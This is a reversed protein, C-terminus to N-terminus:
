RAENLAEAAAALDTKAADIFGQPAEDLAQLIDLGAQSEATAERWRRQGLLARGLKIRAIGTNLHGPGQAETFLAIAQRFYREATPMDGMRTRVTGLNSRAIGLLWHHEGHVRLQIAETRLWLREAEDFHGQQMAITALDNLVSSVRPHDPGFSREQIELARKLVTSAEDRREQFTLARGLMTLASATTPHEPGHWAEVRSLAERYYGEAAAYRGREFEAAGLNILADAVTPHNDGRLRRFTTLALRNLSDSRDLEGAYFHSSALQVMADAVDLPADGRLVLQHLVAQQEAIAAPWDAREQWLLGLAAHAEITRSDLTTLRRDAIAVARRLLPEADDLRAQDIRLLGLGTLTSAVDPHEPGLRAEREILARQFLSDAEDTRGLQQLLGALTVFLETQVAPDGDLAVAERVGRDILTRVRLSDPAGASEDDGQFLATMFRQIRATRGAEAVAVDRAAALRLTYFTVLGIVLLALGAAGAVAQWNRRVFRGARYGFSDPRADLPEGALYHDLDRALADASRYRRAIEPHMATQIIADLEPWAARGPAVEGSRVREILRPVEVLRAALRDPDNVGIDGFPRRGTLLEYGLAGLAFVDTHVGIPGGTYQEPAAYAPTLMRMGTVTREVADGSEDLQKAIGFDLLKISGNATVMVNSPKLDRHIVAQAHAYQVAETVDHLLRIRDRIPVERHQCWATIPEGEVYEMVFWPTGNPLTGADHLQAIGPHSLRALTRQEAAFRQLRNPSVWADRLLKLAALGGVDTREVLWVVGMGGEGLLRVLRYPGIQSPVDTATLLDAATAALQRDLPHPADSERALMARVEEALEPDTTATVRLLADREAPTAATAREFLDQLLDWRRDSM